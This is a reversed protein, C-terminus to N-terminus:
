QNVGPKMHCPIQSLKSYGCNLFISISFYASLFCLCCHLILVFYLFTDDHLVDPSCNVPLTILPESNGPQWLSFPFGIIRRIRMVLLLNKLCSAFSELLWKHTSNIISDVTLVQCGGPAM